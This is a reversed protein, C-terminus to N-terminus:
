NITPTNKSLEKPDTAFKEWCITPVTKPSLKAKWEIKEGRYLPSSKRGVREPEDFNKGL